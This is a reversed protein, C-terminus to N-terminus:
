WRMRWYGPIDDDLGIIASSLEAFVEDKTKLQQRLMARWPGDVAKAWARVAPAAERLFSLDGTLWEAADKLARMCGQASQFSDLPNLIAKGYRFPSDLANSFPSKEDEDAIVCEVIIRPRFWLRKQEGNIEVSVSKSLEKMDRDGTSMYFEMSKRRWGM